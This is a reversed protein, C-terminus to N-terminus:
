NEWDEIQKYEGNIYEYIGTTYKDDSLEKCERENLMTSITQKNSFTIDCRYEINDDDGYDGSLNPAKWIIIKTIILGPEIFFKVM